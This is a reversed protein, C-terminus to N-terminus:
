RGRAATDLVVSAARPPACQMLERVEDQVRRAGPDDPPPAWAIQLAFVALAVALAVAPAVRPGTGEGASRIAHVLWALGAVLLVAFGGLAAAGSVGPVLTPAVCGSLLLPFTLGYFPHPQGEFHYPFTAIAALHLVAGVIVLGPLVGSRLMAVVPEGRGPRWLAALPIVLFPLVPVLFRPGVCDGGSWYLYGTMLTPFGVAAWLVLWRARRWSPTAWLRVIGLPFLLLFPAGYFLGREPSLLQGYAGQATPLVFGFLGQAHVAALRASGKFRYPFHLPHGFALAHYGLLLAAPVLGGAVLWIRRRLTGARVLGFVALGAAVFVAQYETVVAFSMLLGAGFARKASVPAQQGPRLAAFAALLFVAALQHGFFVTGYVLAPTAVAYAAALGLAVRRRGSIDLCLKYVLATALLSPLTICLLTLIQWRLWWPLRDALGTAALLAQPPVALLAAGPAKDMYARGDRVAADLNPVGYRELAPDVSLTGEEVVSEVFYFRIAENAPHFTPWLHLFWGQVLLLLALGVGPHRLARGM